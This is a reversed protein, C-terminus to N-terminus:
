STKRTLNIVDPMFASLRGTTLTDSSRVLYVTRDFDYVVAMLEVPNVIYVAGKDSVIKQVESSEMPVDPAVSSIYSEITPLIDAPMSGGSYSLDFRVYHPVLHRGLPSDNIVREQESSVFSQLGQVTSSYEYNVSLMQGTLQTENDPDDDVGPELISHSLVLEIDEMPSFTLNTDKTLLYYGDSRYGSVLMTQDAPINWLDGPGESVLEVDWYYLGGPATQRQMATSVIRQEGARIITFQESAEVLASGAITLKTVDGSPAVDAIRYTGRNVSQNSTNTLNSFGLETNAQTSPASNQQRISLSVTPNFVLYFFGSSAPIEVISCVNMGVASNIQDAVGKRTVATDDGSVDNVFTVFKDPQDALSLRLQLLALGTVPDALALGGQVPIYDIVLQDGVRVGKKLFDSSASTFTTGSSSGDLPKSGNPLAPVVQRTLTPDPKYNLTIGNADQTTFLADQNVEVSTPELFYVRASGVSRAGVRVVLPLEPSFDHGVSLVAVDPDGPAQDGYFGRQQGDVVWTADLDPDIAPRIAEWSSTSPSRIDRTSRTYPSGGFMANRVFLTTGTTTVNPAFPIIGLYKEGGYEVLVAVDFGLQADANSALNIATIVDEVAMSGILTVSLPTVMDQWTLVFFGGSLTFDFSGGIAIESVLGVIADKVEVKVGNGTNQFALSTTAVPKAYPVKSGVPQGSTDLLDIGTVRLLPRQVGGTTNARFVAYQVSSSSHTFPRDVTIQTFLPSPVDKVVYDGKDYGNLLRLTDGVSVGLADFDTASGTTFITLNQTTHGDSGAARTQKPEVLDVHIEHSLKWLFEGPASPPAPLVTFITPDGSAGKDFGVVRYLGAGVGTLIELSWGHSAADSFDQFTQDGDSYDRDLEYELLSIYGIGALAGIGARSGQYLPRDDYAEDVVLSSTDPSLGRVLIDTCGGIHVEDPPVALTGQPGDPFLIGGPIGSLTLELKRLCWAKGTSGPRMAQESLELTVQDIVRAVPMDRVSPTDPFIDFLTIVYNNVPGVPGILAFFDVGPDTVQLRRTKPKFAGDPVAQAGMGFSLMPGLAGGTIIDRQMEPDNFGIVNLRTIDPFTDTLRAKIGPLTVLSRETLSQGARGIFTVADEAPLGSRFRLKNTVRVAATVNAISTLEAPGINYADGAAEAILNVDFYYLSGELNLAMETSKISQSGTPFFHLGTKSTCFNVQSVNIPQPQTFYLRVQGRAFSGTERNQFLNAGLADAEDTTLTAADKFSLMNKVRQIERIIPDWLLLAPKALLDSVADGDSFALDPFEQTLRTVIFSSADLTFPDTGIRRLLPQIVQADIPSGSSIDQNPDWAGLRERIFVEFDQLGM